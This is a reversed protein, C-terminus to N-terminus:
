LSVEELKRDREDPVEALEVGDRPRGSGIWIVARRRVVASWLWERPLTLTKVKPRAIFIHAGACRPGPRSIRRFHISRQGRVSPHFPQYGFYGDRFSPDRSSVAWAIGNEIQQQLPRRDAASLDHDLDLRRCRAVVTAGSASLLQPYRLVQGLAL